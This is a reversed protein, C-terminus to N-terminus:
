NTPEGEVVTYNAVFKGDAGSVAVIVGYTDNKFAGSTITDGGDLEGTDVQTFGAGELQVQIDAFAAESEVKITANWAPNGDDDLVKGGALIDGTIVPVAEPWGEPLEGVSVNIKGDSAQNIIGAIAGCGGLLPALVLAAAIAIAASRARLPTTM